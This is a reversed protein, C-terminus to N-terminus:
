KDHTKEILRRGKEILTLVRDNHTDVAECIYAKEMKTLEKWAVFAQHITTGRRRRIQEHKHM